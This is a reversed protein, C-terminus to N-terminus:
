NSIEAEHPAASIFTLNTCNIREWSVLSTLFSCHKADPCNTFGNIKVSFFSQLHISLYLSCLRLYSQPAAKGLHFGKFNSLIQRYLFNTTVYKRVFTAWINSSLKSVNQFSWSYSSLISKPLKQFWKPVNRHKQWIM